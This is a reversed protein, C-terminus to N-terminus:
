SFSFAHEVKNTVISDFDRCLTSTSVHYSLQGLCYVTRRLPIASLCAPAGMRNFSALLNHQQGCNAENKKESDITTQRYM